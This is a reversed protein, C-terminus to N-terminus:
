RRPARSKSYPQRCDVCKEVIANAGGLVFGDTGGTVEIGTVRLKEGTVAFAVGLGTADVRVKGKTEISVDAAVSASVAM